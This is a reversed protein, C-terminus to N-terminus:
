VRLRYIPGESEITIHTTIQLAKAYHSPRLGKGKERERGKEREFRNKERRGRLERLRELFGMVCDHTSELLNKM